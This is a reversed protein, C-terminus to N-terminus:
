VLTWSVKASVRRVEGLVVSSLVSEGLVALVGNVALVKLSSVLIGTEKRRLRVLGLASEM